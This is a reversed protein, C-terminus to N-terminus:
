RTKSALLEQYSRGPGASQSTPLGAATWGAEVVRGFMDTEGAFGGCCDVVETFGAEDLMQAAQLSRRGTRCGMVLCANKPFAGAVVDLFEHNPAMRGDHMHLLPINYAGEPHGAEFEPLSRVDVYAYGQAMLGHAEQPSVRRISM